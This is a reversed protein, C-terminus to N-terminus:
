KSVTHTFYVIEVRVHQVITTTTLILEASSTGVAGDLVATGTAGDWDSQFARYWSATGTAAADEDATLPNATLVGGAAAAFAPSGFRVQALVHQGALASDASPPQIGDFLVLWGGDLLASLAAAEANVAADTLRLTM